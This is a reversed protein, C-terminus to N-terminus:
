KHHFVVLQAARSVNFMKPQCHLQAARQQREIAIIQVVRPKRGLFGAAQDHQARRVLFLERPQQRLDIGRQKLASRVHRQGAALKVYVGVPSALQVM